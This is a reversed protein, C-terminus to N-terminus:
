RRTFYPLHFEGHVRFGLTVADDLTLSSEAHGMVRVGEELDVLAIVYPVLAEFEPTPARIVETLSYVHGNGRAKVDALSEGGCSACFPRPYCQWSECTQCRQLLLEGRECAAWFSVAVEDM